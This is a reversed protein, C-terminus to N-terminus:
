IKSKVWFGYSTKENTKKWRIKIFHFLELLRKIAIQFYFPANKMGFSM